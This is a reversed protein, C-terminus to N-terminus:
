HARTFETIETEDAVSVREGDLFIQHFLALLLKNGILKQDHLM